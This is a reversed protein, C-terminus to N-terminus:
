AAVAQWKEALTATVIPPWEIRRPADHPAITQVRLGYVARFERASEAATGTMGSVDRFLEVFEQVTIRAALRTGKTLALSERAEIAQHVGRSWSRGDATRGTFEDVIEVRGDRILYDRDRVYRENVLLARELADLLENQSLHDAGSPMRGTLCRARGAETLAVANGGALLEYDRGAVYGPAERAAWSLCAEIAPDTAVPMAMVLPIVAEDILLSDAEDVILANSFPDHGSLAASGPKGRREALRTRLYDFGFERLTGYIVNAGYEVRRDAQSMGETVVGVRLRYADYLPRMWDADRRALYDNATCIWVTRGATGRAIAAMAGALTKGQGTELEVIAHELLAAAARRQSQTPAFGFCREIQQGLADFRALDPASSRPWM